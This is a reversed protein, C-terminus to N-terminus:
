EEYTVDVVKNGLHRETYRAGDKKFTRMDFANMGMTPQTTAPVAFTLKNDNLIGLYLRDELKIEHTHRIIKPTDDLQRELVYVKKAKDQEGPQHYARLIAQEQDPSLQAFVTIDQPEHQEGTVTKFRSTRGENDYTYVSGQATKFSKVTKPKERTEPITIEGAESM